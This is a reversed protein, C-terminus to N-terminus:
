KQQRAHSFKRIFKKLGNIQIYVHVKNLIHAFLQLRVANIYNQRKRFASRGLSDNNKAIDLDTEVYRELQLRTMANVKVFEARNIDFMENIRSDTGRRHDLHVLNYKPLMFTYQGLKDLRRIFETDEWGYSIMKKNLGGSLLLVKKEALFIGGNCDRTANDPRVPADSFRRVKGYKEMNLSESIEAKLAGSVDMFIRNHPIVVRGLGRRLMKCAQRIADPHLLIDTDCMCILPRTSLAVGENVARSKSFRGPNTEFSRRVWPFTTVIKTTRPESDQEMLLVESDPFHSQIFRLVTLCNDIRDETDVRIPIIFSLDKM